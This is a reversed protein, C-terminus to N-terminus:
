WNWDTPGYMENDEKVKEPHEKYVQEADKLFKEVDATTKVEYDVSDFIEGLRNKLADAAAQNEGRLIKLATEAKVTDRMNMFENYFSDLAEVDTVVKVAQEMTAALKIDGLDWNDMFMQEFKEVATQRIEPDSDALFGIAEALGPAGFWALADLAKLKVSKPIGDPWEDMLQLKHVLAYVKKRDDLDLASQLELFIKRLEDTMKKEDKVDELFNPKTPILKAALKEDVKRSRKAATKKPQKRQKEAITRSRLVDQEDPKGAEGGSLALWTAAGIVVVAAGVLVALVTKKSM